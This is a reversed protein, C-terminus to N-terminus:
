FFGLYNEKGVSCVLLCDLSLCTIDCSADSSVSSYLLLPIQLVLLLIQLLIQLLLVLLRKKRAVEELM